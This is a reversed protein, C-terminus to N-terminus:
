KGSQVSRKTRRERPFVHIKMFFRQRNETVKDWKMTAILLNKYFIMEETKSLRVGSQEIHIRFDEEAILGMYVCINRYPLLTTQMKYTKVVLIYVMYISETRMLLIVSHFRFGELRIFAM